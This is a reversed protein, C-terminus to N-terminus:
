CCGLALCQRISEVIGEAKALCQDGDVSYFVHRGEKRMTLLGAKEMLACHRSIVSRDQPLHQSLGKVDSEGDIILQKLIEIRVPEALAKVFDNDVNNLAMDIAQNRSMCAYHCVYVGFEFLNQSDRQPKQGSSQLFWHYAEAIDVKLLTLWHSYFFAM